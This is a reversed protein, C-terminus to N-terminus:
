IKFFLLVDRGNIGKQKCISNSEGAYILLKSGNITYTYTKTLLQAFGDVNMTGACSSPTYVSNQVGSVTFQDTGPFSVNLDSSVTCSGNVVSVRFSRGSFNLFWGNNSPVVLSTAVYSDMNGTLNSPVVAFANASSNYCDAEIFKWSGDLPGVTSAKGYTIQEVIGDTDEDALVLEGSQYPNGAQYPTGGQYPNTTAAIPKDQVVEGRAIMGQVQNQPVSKDSACGAIFISSLSAVCVLLKIRKM